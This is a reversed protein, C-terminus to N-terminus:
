RLVVKHVAEKMAEFVEDYNDLVKFVFHKLPLEPVIHEELRQRDKFYQFAGSKGGYGKKLGHPQKEIYEVVLDFWDTNMNLKEKTRESSVKKITYDVDIQQLHFLTIEFQDLRVLLETFYDVMQKMSLDFKLILENIHNQLFACEFIYIGEDHANNFSQYLRRHIDRFHSFDNLKYIEFQSCYKFFSQDEEQEIRVRTYATIFHDDREITHHIIENKLHTYTELLQDFEKQKMYSCWCLDIPNLAGENYVYVTQGLNKLYTHLRNAFTTKGSGPLGEIMIIKAM